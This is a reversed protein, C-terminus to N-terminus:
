APDVGLCGEGEGEGAAGATVGEDEVSGTVAAGAELVVDRLEVEM